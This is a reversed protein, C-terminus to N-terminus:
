RPNKNKKITRGLLYGLVTQQTGTDWLFDFVKKRKEIIDPTLNETTTEKEEEEKKMNHRLKFASNIEKEIIGQIYDWSNNEISIPM